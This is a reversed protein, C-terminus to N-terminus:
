GIGDLADHVEHLREITEQDFPARFVVIVEAIGIARYRDVLAAVM